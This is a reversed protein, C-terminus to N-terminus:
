DKPRIILKGPRTIMGSSDEEPDFVIFTVSKIDISVAMDDDGLSGIMYENGYKDEKLYMPLEIQRM